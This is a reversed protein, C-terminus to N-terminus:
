SLLNGFAWKWGLMKPRIHWRIDVDGVNNCQEELCVQLDQTWNSDTFAWNEEAWRVGRRQNLKWIRDRQLRSEQSDAAMGVESPVKLPVTHSHLRQQPHSVKHETLGPPPSSLLPRPPRLPPLLLFIFLSPQKRGLYFMQHLTWEFRPM